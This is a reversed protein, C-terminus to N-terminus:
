DKSELLRRDLRAALALAVQSVAWAPAGVFLVVRLTVFFLGLLLTLVAKAGAPALLSSVVVGDSLARHCVEHIAVLVVLIVLDRKLKSRPKAEPLATAGGAARTETSMTM